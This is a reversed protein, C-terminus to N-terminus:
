SLVRAVTLADISKAGSKRLIKACESLTSGTTYVDDILLIRKNKIKEPSIVDFANHVNKIRQKGDCQIQPLTHKSKKLSEYDVPIHCLKSLEAALLASQNYKRKFLRSYHLPVPIILDVKREFIDAGAMFLWQALLYRNELHDSFKFDLILKKSFDDYKIASRCLRFPSGKTLCSICCMDDMNDLLPKGCRVCFPKSIFNIQNFCHPCLSNETHIVKGCLLCRPPLVLDILTKFIKIM